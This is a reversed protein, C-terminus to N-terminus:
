RAVFLPTTSGSDSFRFRAATRAWIRSVEGVVRAATAAAVPREGAVTERM